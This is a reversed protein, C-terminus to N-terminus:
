FSGSLSLLVRRGQMFRTGSFGSEFNIVTRDDLLNEVNLNLSGHKHFLRQGTTLRMDIETRPIRHIGPPVPSSALGSGHNITFGASAGSKWIYSVDLGATNRQDHDNFDPAPAGTNDVGNPAAISYTYNFSVDWGVTNNDKDKGATLDYTFEIGHVAGIQFNVASYLGIQSGPIFLGTDVQDHIQKVYYALSLTQRPALLHEVSVDYQDLTEPQIPQGIVAGQALPPTNFLRNYSARMTTMRSLKYSANLRPSITIIDVIPQGLNQTQKYWDSRLGYNFTLYRGPKWTDQVYAARYFGSRHVNLTPSQGSTPVYVPNGNIDVVPKGQADMKPAGAPALNPSLAALTDLALQSAPIIQYSENGYQDDLTLGTKFAHRGRTYALSGNIQVHHVNRTSTPNYEISNDVPLNLVDVAPNDNHLDQGSHLFTISLLGTTSTALQRRWSLTAFESVERQTIDQGDAQQSPLLLTQAGLLGANEPTVDPRTGDANRLGLFGFGQGASAFSAPLGTRNGVQYTDPNRSITLSLVDRSSPTYRLKAFENLSSGVNHATQDDPQQPETYNRTRTGGLDVVYSAYKGLPGLTSFDGNTTEYNGGELALDTHSRDAGPLTTVNLIAATQAGFEPAFAGTLIELRDITSPVVVAGQRGSLTDPLPVGDVVYSIDAHEGRVHVQGASDAAAGAGKSILSNTSSGVPGQHIQTTDLTKGPSTANAHMPILRATVKIFIDKVPPQGQGQLRVSAGAPITVETAPVRDAAVTWTRLDFDATTGTRLLGTSLTRASHGESLDEIVVEGSVPRQSQPDVVVFRVRELGKAQAM